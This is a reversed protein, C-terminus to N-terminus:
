IMYKVYHLFVLNGVKAFSSSITVKSFIGGKQDTDESLAESPGSVSLGSTQAWDVRRGECTVTVTM